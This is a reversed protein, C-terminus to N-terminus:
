RRAITLDNSLIKLPDIAVGNATVEFHLHPATARGTAGVTAITQGGQVSDGVEVFLRDAHAYRSRRGDAHEIIVTNGYGSQWGAFIVNGSAAAGIPTGKPAAIDIGNHHKHNGHFPDRRIGFDSSIRGKVPMQFVIPEKVDPTKVDSVRRPRVLEAPNKVSSPDIEPTANIKTPVSDVSRQRTSRIMQVADVAKNLSNKNTPPEVNGATMKSIILDAIGVGGAKSIANAMQESFMQRYTDTANSRFMDGEDDDDPSPGLAKTLQTLLLSEFEMAVRRAEAEHKASNGAHQIPTTANLLNPDIPSTM